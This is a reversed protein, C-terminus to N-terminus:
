FWVPLRIKALVQDEDPAVRYELILSSQRSLDRSISAGLIDDGALFYTLRSQLSGLKSRLSVGFDANNVMILTSRLTEHISPEEHNGARSLSPGEFDVSGDEVTMNASTVARGYEKITYLLNVDNVTHRIASSLAQRALIRAQAGREAETLLDSIAAYGSQDLYYLALFSQKGDLGNPFARDYEGSLSVLPVYPNEQAFVAEPSNFLTPNVTGDFGSAKGPWFAWFIAFILAPTIHTMRLIM